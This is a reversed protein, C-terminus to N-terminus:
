PISLFQYNIDTGDRPKLYKQLKKEYIYNVKPIM